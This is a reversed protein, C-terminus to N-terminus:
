CNGSVLTQGAKSQSKTIVKQFSIKQVPLQTLVPVNEVGKVVNDVMVSRSDNCVVGCSQGSLQVSSPILKVNLEEDMIQFSFKRGGEYKLNVYVTKYIGYFRKLEEVFQWMIVYNSGFYLDVDFHHGFDDNLVIMKGIQEKRSYYFEYPFPLNVMNPKLEIRISDM